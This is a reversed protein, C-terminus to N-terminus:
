IGAYLMLFVCCAVLLLEVVGCYCFCVYVLVETFENLRFIWGLRGCNTVVCGEIYEVPM